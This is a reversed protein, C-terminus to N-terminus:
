VIVFVVDVCVEVVVFYDIVLFYDVCVQMVCLGVFDVLCGVMMMQFDM